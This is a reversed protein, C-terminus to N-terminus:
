VFVSALIFFGILLLPCTVVMIIERIRAVSPGLPAVSVKRTFVMAFRWDEWRPEHLRPTPEFWEM